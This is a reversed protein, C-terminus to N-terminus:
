ELISIYHNISIITFDDYLKTIKTEGIFALNNNEDRVLKVKYICNTHGNEEDYSTEILYNSGDFIYSAERNSKLDKIKIGNHANKFSFGGNEIKESIIISDSVEISHSIIETKLNNITKSRWYKNFFVDREEFPINTTFQSQLKLYEANKETIDDHFSNEDPTSTLTGRKIARAIVEKASYVKRILCNFDDIGVIVINDNEDFFINVIRKLKLSTMECIIKGNAFNVLYVNSYNESNRKYIKAYLYYDGTKNFKIIDTFRLFRINSTRPKFVHVKQYDDKEEIFNNFNTYHNFVTEDTRTHFVQVVRNANPCISFPMKTLYIGKQLNVALYTPLYSIEVESKENYQYPYGIDIFYEYSDKGIYGLKVDFESYLYNRYTKTLYFTKLRLDSNKLWYDSIQNLTYKDLQYIFNHKKDFYAKTNFNNKGVFSKLELESLKFNKLKSKPIYESSFGHLTLNYDEASGWYNLDSNWLFMHGYSEGSLFSFHENKGIENISKQTNEHQLTLYRMKQNADYREAAAREAQFYNFADYIISIGDQINQSLQANLEENRQKLEQYYPDNQLDYYQSNDSTNEGYQSQSNSNTKSNSNTNQTSNNNSSNSSNNNNDKQQETSQQVPAKYINQMFYPKFSNVMESLNELTYEVKIIKVDVSGLQDCIGLLECHNGIESQSGKNLSLTLEHSKGNASFRLKARVSLSVRSGMGFDSLPIAKAGNYNYYLTNNDEFSSHNVIWKISRDNKVISYDVNISILHPGSCVVFKSPVYKATSPLHFNKQSGTGIAEKDGTWSLRGSIQQGFGKITFLIIFIVFIKKM